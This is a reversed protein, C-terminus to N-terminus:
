INSIMQCSFIISIPLGPYNSRWERKKNIFVIERNNFFRTGIIFVQFFRCLPYVPSNIILIAIITNKLSGSLVFSLGIFRVFHVMYGPPLIFGKLELLNM